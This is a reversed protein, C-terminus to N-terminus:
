ETHQSVGVRRARAQPTATGERRTRGLKGGAKATLWDTLLSEVLESFQQAGGAELLQMKTRLHTDRRIWATVQTFEPDTRKGAPRGLRVEAAQPQPLKSKQVKSKKPIAGALMDAYRSM